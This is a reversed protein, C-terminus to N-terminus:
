NVFNNRYQTPSFGTNNKFATAFYASNAYGVAQAIDSISLTMDQMLQKAYNIRKGVTYGFLTEGTANKFISNAHKASLHVHEAVEEIITPSPFNRDIFEKIQAVIVEHKDTKNNENALYDRVAYLLNTIWQKINVISKYNFLKNWVIFDDDFINYFSLKRESLILSTATVVRVSTTKSRNIDENYGTPYLKDTLASLEDTNPSFIAVSLAKYLESMDADNSKPKDSLSLKGFVESILGLECPETDYSITVKIGIDDAFSKSETLHSKFSTEDSANESTLIVLSNVGFELVYTQTLGTIDLIKQKIHSVASYIESSDRSTVDFHLLAIRFKESCQINLLSAYESDYDKSLLLDSLFNETLTGIHRRMYNRYRQTKDLKSTIKIVANTLEDLEIPKLVYASANEDMAGKIYKFEDFCSIFIINVDPLFGRIKKVMEIGDMLPMSVDTIIIDPNLESALRIGDTGNYATGSVTCGLENWNINEVLGTIDSPCDDVLLVSYM